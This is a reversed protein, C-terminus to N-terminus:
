NGFLGKVFERDPDSPSGGPTKAQGDIVPASPKFVSKLSEAHAELEEKTSGRLVSADVGTEKAVGALLEAHAKERDIEELRAKMDSNATEFETLRETAAKVAEDREALGSQAKQLEDYNSKSRDEWKRAEGKLADFEDKLKNYEAEYDM